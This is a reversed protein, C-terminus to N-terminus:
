QQQDKFHQYVSMLEDETFTVIILQQGPQIVDPNKGIYGQEYNYVYTTLVKNNLLRGLFSSQKSDLIEDADQPILAKVEGNAQSLSIGKSFTGMLGQQIIGWIGQEDSVNVAHLYFIRKKDSETDSLLERLKIRNNESLNEAVKTNVSKTETTAAPTSQVTVSETQAHSTSDSTKEIAVVVPEQGTIKDAVIQTLESVKIDSLEELNDKITSIVSKDSEDSKDIIVATKVVNNTVIVKEPEITGTVTGLVKENSKIKAAPIAEVTATALNTPAPKNAKVEKLAIVAVAPAKTTTQTAISETFVPEAVPKKFTPIKVAFSQATSANQANKQVDSLNVTTESPASVIIANDTKSSEIKAIEPTKLEPLQLVQDATVFHNATTIELPEQEQNTISAVHKKAQIKQKENLQSVDATVPQEKKAPQPAKVEATQVEPASNAVPQTKTTSQTNLFNADEYFVFYAAIAIAAIFITLIVRFM